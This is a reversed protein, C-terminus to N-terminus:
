MSQIKQWLESEVPIGTRLNERRTALMGQGPYRVKPIGKLSPTDLFDNIIASVKEAVNAGGIQSVMDIAMFVQSVGTEEERQSIEMTSDGSAILSAM